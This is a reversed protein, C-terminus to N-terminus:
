RIRSHDAQVMVVHRRGVRRKNKLVAARESASKIDTPCARTLRVSSRPVRTRHAMTGADRDTLLVAM